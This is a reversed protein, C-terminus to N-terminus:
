QYQADTQFYVKENWEGNRIVDGTADLAQTPGGIKRFPGTCNIVNFPTIQIASGEDAPTSSTTNTTNPPASPM